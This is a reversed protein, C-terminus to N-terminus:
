PSTIAQRPTITYTASFTAPDGSNLLPACGKVHWFHLNGGTALFKLTGTSAFSPTGGAAVALLAAASTLVAAATRPHM